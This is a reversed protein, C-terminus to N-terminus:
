AEIRRDGAQGEVGVAAVAEVGAIGGVLVQRLAGGRVHHGVVGDGVLM